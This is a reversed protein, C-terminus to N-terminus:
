INQVITGHVVDGDVVINQVHEQRVEDAVVARGSCKQNVDYKPSSQKSGFLAVATLRCFSDSSDPRDFDATWCAM